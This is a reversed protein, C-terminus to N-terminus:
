LPQLMPHVSSQLKMSRKIRIFFFAWKANKQKRNTDHLRGVEISGGNSAVRIGEDRGDEVGSAVSIGEGGGEDAGSGVRVGKGLEEGVGESLGPM